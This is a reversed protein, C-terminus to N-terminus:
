RWLRDLTRHQGDTLKDTARRGPTASWMQMINRGTADICMHAPLVHGSTTVWGNVYPGKLVSTITPRVYGAANGNRMQWQLKPWTKGTYTVGDDSQADKGIGSLRRQGGVDMHQPGLVSVHASTRKIRLTLPACVPDLCNLVWATRAKDPMGDPAILHGGAARTGIIRENVILGDTDCQVVARPGIAEIVRSLRIRVSSEVWALVAPYANESDGSAAVWWRRGALDVMGGRSQSDHDFGEEFSWGLTPAHGLEIKDFSHAAFKGIVSRGWAKCAIRATPPADPHEGRQTAICWRAWPMLAVGLKHVYGRGISELCGLRRAEAIDPGALVTAFRGTPYWTVKDHKVPFRPVPTNIVCEAIIGYRDHDVRWDDVPLSDFASKRAIPLPVDAAISPYASQFDLELFPGNRLTGVRWVNRRGGYIARRDFALGDPDPNITLRQPTATHRMANWGTAPGSITWRGLKNRDWWDILECVALLVIRVDRRCRAHWTSLDDADTPLPLKPVRLRHGLDDVSTPLWSWSDVITLRHSGKVMRLWPAKGGVAADSIEWGDAALILPLRTTVLDFSLNHAFLWVTSRGRVMANVAAVLEDTTSGTYDDERPQGSRPAVRDVVSMDWLRLTLVDDDGVTTTRTETDLVAVTAPGWEAHNPRLYHVPVGDRM